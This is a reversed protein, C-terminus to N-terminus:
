TAAEPSTRRPFTVSVKLGPACNEVSLTGGYAEVLDSVIALGLGTGGGRGDVRGGRKLAAEIQDPPIGPGDDSVAITTGEAGASAAVRVTTRAFRAANEILNGLVESLDADDVPATTEDSAAIDFALEEGRPTRKVVSVVRAAVEAVRSVAPTGEGAAVRARALEREVHRRIADAVEDIENAVTEEGRTRLARVDAALVQLPTKLGHALDAARSRAKVLAKDQGDLLRNIEGALPQVERPVGDALRSSRGAVIDSVARRLRELPLLGVTVEVWAAVILVLALIALAPVLDFGFDSRAADIDAHDEAVVIRVSVADSGSGLAITRVVSILLTGDPGEMESDPRATQPVQLTSDWLSRSRLLAGSAVTEIQWYLGSLPTDFRPDTPARALSVAGDPAVAVSAALQNLHNTLEDAIRREVHREFLYTLGFGAIALAAVVSIASAALLRLRISRGNM